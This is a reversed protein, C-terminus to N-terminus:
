LHRRCHGTLAMRTSFPWAMTIGSIHTAQPAQTSAQGTCALRMRSSRPRARFEAIGNGFFYNGAVTCNNGHRLTLTGKCNLFLNNTFVNGCSKNSIIEIEGNCKEFINGRVTVAATTMSVDSTGIRIIEQGNLEEGGQDILNLIKEKKLKLATCM